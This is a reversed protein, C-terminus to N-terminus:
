RPTSASGSTAGKLSPKRSTALAWLVRVWQQIRELGAGEASMTLEFHRAAQTVDKERLAIEGLTANALPHTREIAICKRLAAKAADLDGLDYCTAGLANWVAAEQPAEGSLKELLRRAKKTDGGQLIRLCYAIKMKTDNSATM